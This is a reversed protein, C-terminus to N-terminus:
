PFLAERGKCVHESIAGPTLLANCNPCRYRYFQLYRWVIRLQDKRGLKRNLSVIKSDFTLDAIERFIKSVNLKSQYIDIAAKFTEGYQAHLPVSIRYLLYGGSLFLFFILWTFSAGPLHKILPATLPQAGAAIAPYFKGALIQFSYIAAYFFWVLAAAYFAFSTYVTSDVIAQRNDVEERLDNGLLLWIRYWYFVSDIGYVRGSYSEFADWLNGLRSPFPAHYQGDNNIPFRRLEFYAENTVQGQANHYTELRGKAKELLGGEDVGAENEIKGAIRELRKEKRMFKESETIGARALLGALRRKEREIFFHAVPGPWFRRGEYIMYVWMDSIIILWGFFIISIVFVYEFKDAWGGGELSARLVPLFGLSIFFGPIVLRFILKIGFEFPLKM